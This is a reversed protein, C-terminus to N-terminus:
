VRNLLLQKATIPKLLFNDFKIQLNSPSGTDFKEESRWIETVTRTILM